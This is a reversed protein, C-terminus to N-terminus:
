QNVRCRKLGAGRCFSSFAGCTLIILFMDKRRGRAVGRLRGDVAGGESGAALLSDIGGRGIGGRCDWRTGNRRSNLLGGRDGRGSGSTKSLTSAHNAVLLGDEGNIPPSEYQLSPLGAPASVPAFTCYAIGTMWSDPQSRSEAECLWCHLDKHRRAFFCTRM